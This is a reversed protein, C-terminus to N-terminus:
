AKAKWTVEERKGDFNEIKKLKKRRSRSWFIEDEMM